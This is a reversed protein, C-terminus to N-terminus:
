GVKVTMELNGYDRFHQEEYEFRIELGQDQCWSYFKNFGEGVIRDAAMLTSYRRHRDEDKIRDDSHVSRLAAVLVAETDHFEMLKLINYHTYIDLRDFHEVGDTISTIIEDFFDIWWQKRHAIQRQNAERERNAINEKIKEGITMTKTATM